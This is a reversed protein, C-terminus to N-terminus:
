WTEPHPEFDNNWRRRWQPNVGVLERYRLYEVHGDCFAVNCGIGHRRSPLFFGLDNLNARAVVPSILSTTGASDSIAIMDAPFRVNSEMVEAIEEGGRDDWARGLGLNMWPHNIGTGYGNYGYFGNALQIRVSAASSDQGKGVQIAMAESEPCLFARPGISVKNRTLVYPKLLKAWSGLAVIQQGSVMSDVTIRSDQSLPYAHFDNAYMALALGQQRLNNKCVVSRTASKAHSLSSLFLSTLVFVVAVVVLLELLTFGYQAHPRLSVPRRHHGVTRRVAIDPQQSQYLITDPIVSFM